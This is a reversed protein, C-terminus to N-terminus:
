NNAATKRVEFLRNFMDLTREREEKHSNELKEYGLQIARLHEPIATTLGYYGLWGIAVLIALLVVNNFPQGSAWAIVQAVASRDKADDAM